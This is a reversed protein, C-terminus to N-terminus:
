LVLVHTLLSQPFLMSALVSTQRHAASTQTVYALQWLLHPQLDLEFNSCYQSHM